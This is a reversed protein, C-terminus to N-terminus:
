HRTSTLKDVCAGRSSCADSIRALSMTSCDAAWTVNYKGEGGCRDNHENITLVGNALTWTQQVSGMGEITGTATGDARMVWTYHKGALLGPCAYTGTWTAVMSCTGGASASAAVVPGSAEAAPAAIVFLIPLLRLTSMARLM